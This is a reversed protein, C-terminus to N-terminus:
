LNRWELPLHPLYSIARLKYYESAPSEKMELLLPVTTPDFVDTSLVNQRITTIDINLQSDFDYSTVLPGPIRQFIQAVTVYLSNIEPPDTQNLLKEQVLLCNTYVTDPTLAPTPQYESRKVVTLRTVIPYAPDQQDYDISYDHKQQDIRANAWVRRVWFGDIDYPAQFVLEFDPYSGQFSTHSVSDFKTSYPLIEYSGVETSVYETLIRDSIIPTPFSTIPRAPIPEAPKLRTTTEAIGPNINRAM